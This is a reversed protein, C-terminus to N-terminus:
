WQYVIIELLGHKMQVTHTLFSLWVYTKLDSLELKMQVTHTLFSGAFFDLIFSDKNPKM